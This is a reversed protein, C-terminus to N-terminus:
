NQKEIRTTPLHPHKWTTSDRKSEPTFEYVWTEEGTVISEKFSEGDQCRCLNELSAAM